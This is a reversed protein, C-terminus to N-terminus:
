NKDLTLEQSHQGDDSTLDDLDKQFDEAFKKQKDKDQMDAVFNDFCFDKFVEDLINKQKETM